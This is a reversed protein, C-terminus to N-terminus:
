QPYKGFTKKLFRHFKHVSTVPEIFMFACQKTILNLNEDNSQYTLIDKTESQQHFWINKIGKELLQKFVEDAKSSNVTVYAAEADPMEEISRYCKLDAISDTNPNVPYLTYNKNFENFIARSFDKENRSVGIMAITKANLFQEIQSFKIM